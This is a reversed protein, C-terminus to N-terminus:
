KLDDLNRFIISVNYSGIVWWKLSSWWSIQVNIGDTQVYHCLEIKLTNNESRIIEKTLDCPIETIKNDNSADSDIQSNRQLIELAGGIIYSQINFDKQSIIKGLIWDFDQLLYDVKLEFVRM